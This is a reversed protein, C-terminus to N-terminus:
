KSSQTLLPPLCVCPHFSVCMAPHLLLIVLKCYILGSCSDGHVKGEATVYLVINYGGDYPNIAEVDDDDEQRYRQSHDPFRDLACEYAAMASDKFDDSVNGISVFSLCLYTPIYYILKTCKAPTYTYLTAQYPPLLCCCCCCLFPSKKGKIILDGRGAVKRVAFHVLQGREVGDQM